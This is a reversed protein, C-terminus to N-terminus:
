SSVKMVSASGLTASGMGVVSTSVSTSWSRTVTRGMWGMWLAAVHQLQLLLPFPCLILLLMYLLVLM